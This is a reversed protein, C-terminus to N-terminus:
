SRLDLHCVRYIVNENRPEYVQIVRARTWGHSGTHFWEVGQDHHVNMVIENGVFTADSQGSLTKLDAGARVTVQSGRHYRKFVLSKLAKLENGFQRLPLWYVAVGFLFGVIVGAIFLFADM